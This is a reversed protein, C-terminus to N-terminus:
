KGVRRMWACQPASLKGSGVPFPFTTPLPV